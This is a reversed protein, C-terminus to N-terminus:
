GHYLGAFLRSLIKRSAFNTGFRLAFDLVPGNLIGTLARGGVLRLGLRRRVLSTYRSLHAEDPEQGSALVEGLVEGASLGSLLAHYIGEATAYDALRAAEGAVLVGPSVLATPWAGVHVPHGVLNGIRSAHRMRQGLRRELFSEFRERANPGPSKAFFCLGINVRSTSEPFVWGYHPKLSADFYVEVVDSVGEVGEYWGMITHLTAGGRDAPTLNGTAGSADIVADAEIAGQDTEVGVVRGDVRAISNVRVGERFSAGRAVAEHVLLEDFVERLLIATEHDGRLVLGDGTTGAILAGDIRFAKARVKEGVGMRDLLTLTWPSLGSGCVKTRPFPRRDLVICEVGSRGALTMAAASGAPGAGAIVVRKMGSSRHM